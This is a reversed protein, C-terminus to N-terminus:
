GREDLSKRQVLQVKLNPVRQFDADTTVVTLGRELATAAILTDVDGILGPRQGRLQRRIQAYREMIRFTVFYPKIEGLLERLEAQRRPFDAMGRLYEVVEGYVLVSTAAERRSLWPSLLEVAVKRRFLGATLITTDILYRKV